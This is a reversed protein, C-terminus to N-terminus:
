FNRAIPELREMWWDWEARAWTAGAELSLAKSWLLM